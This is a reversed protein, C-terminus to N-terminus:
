SHRVDIKIAKVVFTSECPFELQFPFPDIRQPDNRRHMIVSLMVVSPEVVSLMIVSLMIVCLMIFNSMLVSLISVSPLTVSLMIISYRCDTCHCGAYSCDTYCCETLITVCCNYFLPLKHAAIKGMISLTTIIFTMAGLIKNKSKFTSYIESALSINGHRKDKIKYRAVSM